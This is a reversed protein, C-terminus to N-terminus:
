KQSRRGVTWNFKAEAGQTTPPAILQNVATSKDIRTGSLQDM